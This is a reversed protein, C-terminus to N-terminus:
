PSRVVTAPAPDTPQQERPAEAIGFRDHVRRLPAPAWWNWEGALKMLAPVLTARVIFADVLVAVGLGLGFLKIFTVGSTAFAFFTISLLLAAATVLRGTKELGVAVALDNDGTRDHEEKMRSLLFVEYDMSLGFAICFMLIPTTTDTLGTATFDLVGSGNGDQFVWVMLGFTATLSLTNLVIAKLPVLVSGFMLFLLVFTAVAILGGAIPVLGFIAAKSDVLAASSGGVAVEDFPSALARIEDILAEADASIPEVDPVVRFWTADDGRLEALTPDTPAITIGEVYRGTFADVRGVGDLSSIAAAYEAVAEAGGADDLGVAVVAFADADASAFDDRLTDAVRRADDDAPLVRDDPVGFEVGLFPLGAALLVIIGATAVAVPRRMVGVAIRHWAGEGVAAPSRRVVQWADIRHGVVALVAPLVVVSTVMAVLLVGIGAYAFSRLFYLPFILLASLSVAVTLASFAVTRGATEVTRVIAGEVTRGNALEERYRTVIFLSYDIALGLGLATVLNISFISVDAMETIVFLVLFAGLIAAGGVAVPLLAAM